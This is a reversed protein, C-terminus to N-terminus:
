GGGCRSTCRNDDEGCTLAPLRNRCYDSSAQCSKRLDPNDIRDCKADRQNAVGAGCSDGSGFGTRSAMCSDYQRQCQQMCQNAATVDRLSPPDAHFDGDSSCASLLLTLLLASLTRPM